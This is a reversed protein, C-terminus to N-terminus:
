KKNNKYCNECTISEFYKSGGCECMDYGTINIYTKSEKNYISFFVDPLYNLLFRNICQRDIDILKIFDKRWGKKNFEINSNKIINLKNKIDDSKINKLLDKKEKRTKEIMGRKFCNENYFDLMYKKMWVNVKKKNILISVKKVWGFVSFDINSNLVLDILVNNQESTKNLKNVKKELIKINKEKKIYNLDINKEQKIIKKVNKLMNEKYEKYLVLRNEFNKINDSSIFKELRNIINVNLVEEYNIRFIRWGKENLINDRKIDHEVRKNNIFHQKGDLEVAIKENIFAFDIFYPYECYENVVDYKHFIGSNMCKNYFVSEIYSMDGNNRREWATKGTRKKLYEVRKIRQKEKTEDSVIINKNLEFQCKKSCCTKTFNAKLNNFNKIKCNEGCILCKDYILNEHKVFYELVTINNKKLFKSLEATRKYELGNIKCIM